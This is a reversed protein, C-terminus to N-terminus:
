EFVQVFTASIEASNKDLRIDTWTPCKVKIESEGDPTWTFSEAGAKSKFFTKITIIVDKTNRFTLAYTEPMTNIGDAVRQEYGDGFSSALVKPTTTASPNRIPQYNFDSM